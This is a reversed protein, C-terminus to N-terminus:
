LSKDILPFPWGLNIDLICSVDADLFDASLSFLRTYAVRTINVALGQLVASALMTRGITNAGLRPIQWEASLRNALATIGTGSTGGLALRFPNERHAISM